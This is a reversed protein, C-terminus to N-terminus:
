EHFVREFITDIHELHHSLDFLDDLEKKGLVKLIDRDKKLLAKFDADSEWVKLANRQVLAYADDRAMGKEVLALLVNQSHWLGKTLELNKRINEPFVVLGEIIGTLRALMFDLVTTADPGIVREVSSHSIDREHWLAVNELASVCYGRLLRALGSINESGIPNKKHPMASSGKQGKGFPEMAELVETRQLHRIETAIKELSAGIIALTTFFEAHRDRQLVQTSIPAPKLGLRRCAYAEVEPPVNAFTGVAGSIKGYSVTEVARELRALNREMEAYWLAFKLGFTIPEAHIGHSRGMAPTRRFEYARKKLADMLARIDDSLIAGSEKLLLAYATDLVDSSTLGMHIFRADEGVHEAVCSVFAIVDHRTVAEIEEIRAVTFRAKRKITDLSKKPIRGLRAWAECAALEVDLWKRYRNEESWIEQFRKRTYREIM